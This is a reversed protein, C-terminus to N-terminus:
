NPSNGFEVGPTICRLVKKMLTSAKFVVSLPRRGLCSAILWIYPRFTLPYAKIALALHRRIAAQHNGQGYYLLAIKKHYSSLVRPLQSLEGSYKRLVSLRRELVSAPAYRREQHAVVLSEPVYDIQSLRSARFLWDIDCSYPLTEDFPGVKIALSRKVLWCPKWSATTPSTALFYEFIWGRKTPCYERCGNLTIVTMGCLVLGLNEMQSERFVQLQRELKPPLWEDDDDLFAIYEGRAASIGTKITEFAGRHGDLRIYIIRPDTFSRVVAETNDPSGDDVVIIEINRFTQALV